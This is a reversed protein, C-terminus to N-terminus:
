KTTETQTLSKRHILRGAATQTQWKLLSLLMHYPEWSFPALMLSRKFHFMSKRRNRIKGYLSGLLANLTASQKPYISHEHEFLGLRTELSKITRHIGDSGQPSSIHSTNGTGVLVLVEPVCDVHCVRSLRLVYEDDNQIKLEENWPGCRKVAEARILWTPTGGIRNRVLVEKYINGRLTPHHERLVQGDAKMYDMWCYILGIEAPSQRFLTLQKELKQPLWEDDDDLFAIFEGKSNRIGINRSASAHLNSNNRFVRVRQDATVCHELVSQTNDTSADDVVICELNTYTQRLVSDVARKLMLSRNYTPIIVSVLPSQNM